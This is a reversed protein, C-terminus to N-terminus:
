SDRPSPSTYLLCINYPKAPDDPMIQDVGSVDRDIPDGTDMYPPEEMNISPLYSLLKKATNIAEQESDVMFHVVGSKSAHVAAGGLDQFTVEEGLVVKTIEPGTVFMYYADGKIMIIFDTLAPSYVAGGAAPGAMITIQPIVGSAMVNNKFVLGYGELAMAGEQIRAGGSDNIGVVPAGVKLALEYIKGIKAAHMEGLTGGIETFDQAYAFVTRGDVKGWGTVVGDGYYREKDLGFETARTTAFTMIENFTGEDFLLALRERATLKGKSHQAKIREDGGGKYAKEKRQRLEDLLKEYASKEASM